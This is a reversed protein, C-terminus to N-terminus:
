EVDDAEVNINAAVPAIKSKPQGKLSVLKDANSKVKNEIELMLATDKKFLEKVNERGQGLRNDGYSFWSSV